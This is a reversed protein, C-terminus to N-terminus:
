LWVEQQWSNYGPTRKTVEEVVEDPVGAEALPHGDSFMADFKGSASGDAICWPCICDRLTVPAYVSATYIHGRAQCCCRCVVDSPKVSGTAIPDPHYLFAPLSM